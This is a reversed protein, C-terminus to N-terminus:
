RVGGHAPTQRSSDECDNFPALRGVHTRTDKM